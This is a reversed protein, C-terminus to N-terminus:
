PLIRGIPWSATVTCSWTWVPVLTNKLSEFCGRIQEEPTTPMTGDPRAASHATTFILDGYRIARSWKTKLSDGNPIVQIKKPAM